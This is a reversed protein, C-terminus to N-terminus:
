VAQSANAYARTAFEGFDIYRKQKVSEGCSFGGFWVRAWCGLYLIKTSTQTRIKEDRIYM